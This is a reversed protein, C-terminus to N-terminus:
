HTHKLVMRDGTRADCGFNGLDAGPLTGPAVFCMSGM